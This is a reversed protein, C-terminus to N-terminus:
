LLCEYQCKNPGPIKEGERESERVCMRINIFRDDYLMFLKYCDTKELDQLPQFDFKSLPHIWSCWLYKESQLQKEPYCRYFFMQMSGGHHFCQMCVCWNDAGVAIQLPWLLNESYTKPWIQWKSDSIIIYM